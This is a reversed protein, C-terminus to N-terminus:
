RSGGSLLVDRAKSPCSEDVRPGARLPTFHIVSLLVGRRVKVRVCMHRDRFVHTTLLIPTGCRFSRLIDARPQAHFCGYELVARVKSENHRVVTGQVSDGTGVYAILRYCGRSSPMASVHGICFKFELPPGGVKGDFGGPMMKPQGRYWPYLVYPRLPSEGDVSRPAPAAIHRHRSIYVSRTSHHQQWGYGIKYALGM